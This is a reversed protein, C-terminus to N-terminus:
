PALATQSPTTIMVGGEKSSKIMVDMGPPSFWSGIKRGKDDLIDYGQLSQTKEAARLSMNGILSKMSEPTPNIGKWLDSDLTVSKDIGIVANPFDDSGSIYYNSDPDVHYSKYSLTVESSPSLKGYAGSSLRWLLLILVAAIAAGTVIIDVNIDKGM